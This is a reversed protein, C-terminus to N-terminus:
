TLVLKRLMIPFRVTMSQLLSMPFVVPAPIYNSRALLGLQRAQRMPPLLERLGSM